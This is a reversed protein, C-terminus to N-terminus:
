CMVSQLASPFGERVNWINQQAAVLEDFTTVGDRSLYGHNAAANLGPSRCTLPRSNHFSRSREGLVGCRVLLRINFRTLLIGLHQCRNAGLSPVPCGMLRPAPIPTSPRTLSRLADISRKLVGLAVLNLCDAVRFPPSLRQPPSSLSSFASIYTCPKTPLRPCSANWKPHAIERV